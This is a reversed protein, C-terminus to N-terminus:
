SYSRLVIATHRASIMPPHCPSGDRSEVVRIVSEATDEQLLAVCRMTPMNSVAILAEIARRSKRGPPPGAAARNGPPLPGNSSRLRSAAKAVSPEHLSIASLSLALPGPCASASSPLNWLPGPMHSACTM